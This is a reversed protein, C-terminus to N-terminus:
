ERGDTLSDSLWVQKILDVEELSILQEGLETQLRMVDDLVEKRYEMRLPGHGPQGNRRTTERYTDAEDRMRILKARLHAMGIYETRGSGIFGEISKDRDVVTCTWCGFRSNGCPKTSEDIVIPCEGSNAEKYLNQLRRHTGGWPPPTLSLYEWVEETSLDRIPAWVFANQLTTHPNIELGSTQHKRISQARTASESIRTGLLILVEGAAAVQSTIFANSPKIKLRETCWRFTRNPAPYGYGILRVWFTEHVEPRVLHTDIPLGRGEAGRQLAVLQEEIFAAIAPTEVLTDSSLVHVPRTRRSPRVRALAEFVLHVVLTSDKGGSYAVIWPRRDGQSEYRAVIKDLISDTANKLGDSVQTPGHYTTVTTM